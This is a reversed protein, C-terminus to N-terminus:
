LNFREVVEDVKDRDITNLENILSRMEKLDVTSRTPKAMTSTTYLNKIAKILVIVDKGSNEYLSIANFTIVDNNLIADRKMEMLRDENEGERQWQDQEYMSMNIM